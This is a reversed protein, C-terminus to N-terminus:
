CCRLRQILMEDTIHGHIVREATEDSANWDVKSDQRPTWVTGGGDILLYGNKRVTNSKISVSVGPLRIKVGDTARTFDDAGIEFEHRNRSGLPGSPMFQFLQWQRICSYDALKDAIRTLGDANRRHVVTNIGVRAGVAELLSLCALQDAVSGFRRFARISEDDAGDIPIGILDVDGAVHAADVRRATGSGMFRIRADGLFATGVTDLQIRLGLARLGKLLTVIDPRTLPDGGGVTIKRVGLDSRLRGIFRLITETDILNRAFHNYCGPCAVFCGNGATLIVSRRM